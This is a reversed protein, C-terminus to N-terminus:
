FPCSCISSNGVVSHVKLSAFMIMTKKCPYVPLHSIQSGKTIKNQISRFIDLPFKYKNKSVIFLKMYLITNAHQCLSTCAPTMRFTFFYASCTDFIKPFLAYVKVVINQSLHAYIMWIGLIKHCLPM